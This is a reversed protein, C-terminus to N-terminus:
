GEEGSEEDFSAFVDSAPIYNQLIIPKDADGNPDQEKSFKGRGNEIRAENRTLTGRDIEAGQRVGREEPSESLAPINSTNFKGWQNPNYLKILRKTITESLMRIKPPLTSGWFIKLQEKSNAYNAYQFLGALVPPVGITGLVKERIKEELQAYHMEQIQETLLTIDM